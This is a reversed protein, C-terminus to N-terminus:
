FDVKNPYLKCTLFYMCELHGTWPAKVSDMKMYVVVVILVYFKEMM